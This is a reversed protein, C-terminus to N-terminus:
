SNLVYMEGSENAVRAAGSSVLDNLITARWQTFSSESFYLRHLLSLYSTQQMWLHLSSLSLRQFELLKFKVLVKSAYRAHRLPESCFFQLRTRAKDLAQSVDDFPSGHGPIVLLPNLEEILDLTQAVQDFASLGEIEPFVVGFGNEWLADASILLRLDSQFLIISHPDHGPAAHIQWDRHGLRISGGPELLADFGFRPCTQGTPVYSLAVPDWNTVFISQGPPIYTKIGPFHSQVAANGGCHDSHLHTNILKAPAQEDLVSRLLGLTQEAHTVYGTDVLAAHTGGLLLINNSSLWGREFVVIDPPLKPPSM